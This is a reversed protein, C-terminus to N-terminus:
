RLSQAVDDVAMSFVGTPQGMGILERVLNATGEPLPPQTFLISAGPSDLSDVLDERGAQRLGEEVQILLEQARIQQQATRPNFTALVTLAPDLLADELAPGVVVWLVEDTQEMPATRHPLAAAAFEPAVKVDFRRRELELLIGFGTANLTYPDYFRIQYTTDRDIRRAVDDILGALIRSDTRGPLKVREVVQLVTTSSLALLLVGILTSATEFSLIRWRAVSRITSFIIFLSFALTISTLLWFWRVTYEYYPGFIRLISVSGLFHFGLLIWLVKRANPMSRSKRALLLGGCVIGIFCMFGIWRIPDTRAAGPGFLWPGFLNMQTTIIEISTHLSLTPEDPSGFHQWLISLNGPRRRMQDLFAPSWVVLATVVGTIIPVFVRQRSISGDPNHQRWRRVALSVLVVGLPPIVLLVYGAHSQVCHSGVLVALAVLVSDLRTSPVETAGNESGSPVLIELILFVFVAFPLLALWPNWPEIMFDTGSSRVVALVFLSSLGSFIWGGRRRALLILAAISVLHVSAAAAMLADSSRGGILYVPLMAFWLSPGPHSGQFGSDSVIRGAAGVLPPREFFGRMHLEAQAMDGAPFWRVGFVMMAVAVVIPASVLVLVLAFGKRGSM